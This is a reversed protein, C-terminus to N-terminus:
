RKHLPVYDRKPAGVYLQRPRGIKQSPDEIMETWQAIWGVTRALAFLATFMSTPFGLAKLTIGSYFDINPYLKKEVFYDDHLAIKELELAVKLLPDDHIGLEDL